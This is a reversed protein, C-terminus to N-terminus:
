VARLGGDAYRRREIVAPPYYLPLACSAYLAEHLGARREGSGAGFLVSEGSDLDTATVTLPTALDEFARAPVLQEILARLPGPKLLHDTFVGKAIAVLDLVAVKEHSPQLLATSLAEHTVGSALAAAMVAGFSTGVYHVPTIGAEALARRAGVHAVSKAGGGGFVAVVRVGGGGAGAWFASRPIRFASNCPHAGAAPFHPPWEANRMRCEANTENARGRTM